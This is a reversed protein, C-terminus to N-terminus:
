RYLPTLPEATVVNYQRIAFQWWTALNAGTSSWLQEHLWNVSDHDHLLATKEKSALSDPGQALLRLRLEHFYERSEPPPNRRLRLLSLHIANIYPDLLALLLGYDQLLSPHPRIRQAAKGLNEALQSVVWPPRTEDPTLFLGVARTRRGLTASGTLITIPVCLCLGALVPVLWPFLNPAVILCSLGWVLGFLTVGGFNLISERWDVEGMTKRRQSAWRVGQGFITLLVFKTHYVMLVPALLIFFITELFVSIIYRVLGGYAALEQRNFCIRAAMLVKPGFLMSMTVGFLVLSQLQPHGAALTQGRETYGRFTGLMLFIFWLFSVAYSLVGHALMLRHIPSWGKAWLLWLHQLNGQCWRRDRKLHDLLTPPGEEFTGDIEPALCVFYGARRMLAAEVFDHSLIRGGFPEKGPLDPLACNEIFPALRIVANHGWYTAEGVQWYNVGAAFVPGYVRSAFQFVRAFTTEGNILRPATQLIGVSPNAEMLRVMKVLTDGSMLSDADLVLMYRYRKGWRRCFDAINGSKRNIAQRRKRYFIRGFANLQRSLEMWAVEEEIWKTSDDSDSLVFFDFAALEGTKELSRFIVRLSEFVRTVDENYIPMVIATSALPPQPEDAGPLTRILSLPNGRKRVVVYLGVLTTVMASTLFYFLPIFVLLVCAELVHFGGSRLVEAMLFTGITTVIFVMSFYTSRRRELREVLEPTFPHRYIM